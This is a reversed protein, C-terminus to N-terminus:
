IESEEYRHMWQVVDEEDKGFTPPSQIKDTRGGTGQAWKSNLQESDRIYSSSIRHDKKEFRSIGSQSSKETNEQDKEKRRGGVTEAKRRVSHSIIIQRVSAPRQEEAEQRVSRSM